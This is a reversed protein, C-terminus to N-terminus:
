QSEIEVIRQFVTSSSVDEASEVCLVHASTALAAEIGKPSDEVILTEEPTIGLWEIARQYGEPSPKPNTVDENTIVRDIFELQASKELMMLATRRISNTVCCARIKKVKLDHHLQLKKESPRCKKDIVDITYAQKLGSISDLMSRRKFVKESFDPDESDVLISLKTKTPLGNFRRLHTDRDIEYGCVERLAKNLAEYHWDCADVLVGDLDFLVAKIM